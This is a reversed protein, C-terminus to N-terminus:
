PEDDGLLRLINGAFIRRRTEEGIGLADLRALDEDLTRRIKTHHVDTGFCVKGFAGPWWLWKAVGVADMRARWGGPEGTLDVYVTPRMRALEAADDNWHIGLHAVIVKLDPFARTVPELRMPHMKWSSIGENPAAAATTVVGTHFLVPMGHAAAREWLPFGAPDDYGIRPISVKVMRFGEGRARDIKEPGDVGPRVFAAGIVRGPYADFAKRVDEDTGCGFLEGPGRLRVKEIGCADMTALLGDLYHPEDLLHAHADIIRM